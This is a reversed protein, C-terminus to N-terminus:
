LWRRVRGKYALYAAGFKRELYAEERAIALKTVLAAAVAASVWFWASGLAFGLGILMLTLALYMPNRTFRYVGTAVIASTPSTPLTATGARLFAIEAAAAILAALAVVGWGAWRLAQPADPGLPALRTLGWALAGASGYIAPPWPFRSSADRQESM